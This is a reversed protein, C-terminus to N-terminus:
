ATTEELLFSDSSATANGIFSNSHNSETNDMIRFMVISGFLSYAVFLLSPALQPIEALPHMININLIHLKKHTSLDYILVFVTYVM